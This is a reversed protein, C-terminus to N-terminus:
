SFRENKYNKHYVITKVVVVERSAVTEIMRQQNKAM